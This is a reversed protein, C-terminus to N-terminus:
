TRFILSRFVFCVLTSYNEDKSVVNCLAKRTFGPLGKGNPTYTPTDNGCCIVIEITILLKCVVHKDREAWWFGSRPPGIYDLHVGPLGCYGWVSM